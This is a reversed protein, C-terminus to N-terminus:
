RDMQETVKLPEALNFVIQRGAPFIVTRKTAFYGNTAAGSRMPASIGAGAAAGDLAGAVAGIAAGTAMKATNVIGSRAGAEEVGHTAIMALHGDAMTIGTLTLALEARGGLLPAKHAHMIRGFVNVGAPAIVFGNVVLPSDM